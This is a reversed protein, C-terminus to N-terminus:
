RGRLNTCEVQCNKNGFNFTTINGKTHIFRSKNTQPGMRVLLVYEQRNQTDLIRLSYPFNLIMYVFNNIAFIAAPFEHLFYSKPLMGYCVM